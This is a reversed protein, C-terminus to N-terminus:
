KEKHGLNQPAAKAGEWAMVDREKTGPRYRQTKRM